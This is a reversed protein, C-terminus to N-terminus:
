GGCAMALPNVGGNGVGTGGVRVQWVCFVTANDEAIFRKFVYLDAPDIARKIRFDEVGVFGQGQGQGKISALKFTLRGQIKM